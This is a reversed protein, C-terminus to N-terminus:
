RKMPVGRGPRGARAAPAPIRTGRGVGRGRSVAAPSRSAGSSAGGSIGKGQSLQPRQSLQTRRTNQTCGDRSMLHSKWSEEGPSFNEHCLPCHSCSQGSVLPKCTSSQAHDGLQDRHVAESCRACQMFVGRSECEALLHDTLSSIEVVQRCQVCRKLMPCHKWYHLDLGDETFSDDKEGCFICVSDLHGTTAPQHGEAGGPGSPTAKTGGTKAAAKEAKREQAKANEKGKESIEKLAALQEQLSRIEEREKETNQEVGGKGSTQTESVRGDMKDFGDFINKYLVNKRTVADNPPLYNLVAQGHLRYLIFVIKVATERVSSSSHELAGALFKMVNDLTFGSDRTGMEQLLRELLGVRGLALRVPASGKLPKVLEGPVVQLMRVEKFLAMEQIFTLAMTRLRSSSDGTRGMLQTLTQEVCHSVEARGLHHQSVFQTLLLTLLKLSAQFVSSVKDLLAKKVLFVAARMLSRLEGKATGAPAESLKRYIALLADERYSWTKSYAGAVLSDGYVEIPLSAERQANESLPEPEGTAAPSRPSFQPDTSGSPGPPASSGSPAEESQSLQDNGWERKMLAPLPREDYPVSSVEGLSPLRPRRPTASPTEKPSSLKPSVPAEPRSGQPVAPPKTPPLSPPKRSHISPSPIEPDDASIDAQFELQGADLLSHLQLQQYVRLRYAEMHEKRQKATDYDEREIASRKEVEYRGLREGVKQLDAVAQKLKKAADYREHRVMEQKQKDLLRIIHAVEPDQYMDFALDDLPSISEHKGSYTSDLPAEQHSTNLYQEILQEKTPIISENDDVPDGLINIAVLAVQSYPNYRNDYNRHFALRLYTGVADVHVSKLERARFGTKENDSLSVYGLRRFHESISPSALPNPIHDAIYFEIMSPILYQHALLQLKRIRCREAMQLTVEQPYPCYRASRWGNVTPGHVMLEKSSCGDEHGSSSVVVFGIKRPM